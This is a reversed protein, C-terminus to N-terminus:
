LRLFLGDIPRQEEIIIGGRENRWLNSSTCHMLEVLKIRLAFVSKGGEASIAAVLHGKVDQGSDISSGFSIKYMEEEFPQENFQAHLNDRKRSQWIQTIKCAM